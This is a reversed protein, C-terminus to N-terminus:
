NEEIIIKLTNLFEISFDIDGWFLIKLNENDEYYNFSISSNNKTYGKSNSAAILLNSIKIYKEKSINEINLVSSNTINFDINPKEKPIFSTNISKNSYKSDKTFEELDDKSIRWQRGVKTAKLKKDNIFNRITKHHLNLIDSVEYITYFDKEM